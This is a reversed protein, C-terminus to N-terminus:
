SLMGQSLAYQIAEHSNSVNLKSLIKQRHTNVTHVSIFLTDAITKSAYGKQILLLIEKERESLIQPEEYPPVQFSEGTDSNIILTKIPTQSDQNPSIDLVCIALWVNGHKDTELTKFQELVRTYVGKANRIRYENIFKLSKIPTNTADLQLFFKVMQIGTKLLGIFDDPHIRSDFFHNGEKKAEEVDYGLLNAFRSSIYTHEKKYLDFISIASTDVISITNLLDVHKELLSYDLDEPVFTQKELWFYYEQYLQEIQTQM